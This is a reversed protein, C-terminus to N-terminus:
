QEYNNEMVRKLMPRYILERVSRRLKEKDQEQVVKWQAHAAEDEAKWTGDFELAKYKETYKGFDIMTPQPRGQAEAEENRVQTFWWDLLRRDRDPLVVGTARAAVLVAFQEEIKNLLTHEPTDSAISKVYTSEFADLAEVSRILNEMMKLCTYTPRKLKFDAYNAFPSNTHGLEHALTERLCESDRDYKPESLTIELNELDAHASEYKPYEDTGAIATGYSKLMARKQKVYQIKVVNGKIEPPLTELILRVKEESMTFNEFGEFKPFHEKPEKEKTRVYSREFIQNLGEEGVKSRVFRLSELEAQELLEFKHIYESEQDDTAQAILKAIKEEPSLEPVKLVPTTKREQPVVKPLPSMEPIVTAISQKGSESNETTPAFVKANEGGLVLAMYLATPLVTKQMREKLKELSGNFSRQEEQVAIEEPPLISYEGNFRM